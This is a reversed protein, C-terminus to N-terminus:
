FKKFLSVAYAVITKSLKATVETQLEQTQWYLKLKLPKEPILDVLRGQKLCPDVSLAPLLAYAMGDLAFQLLGQPSPVYHQTAKGNKYTKFLNKFYDDHMEDYEGYIAAPANLLNEGNIGKLFFKKVFQPTAVCKYIMEGLYTSICGHPSQAVSTVCGWVKGTRLYDITRDQDDILLELIIREQITISKITSLFWTSLSETNLAIAISQFGVGRKQFPLKEKLSSELLKVQRLHALLQQGITTPSITPSRVLVPQGVTLEMQRIRQSIASQSIFLSAAARQFSREKVVADLAELQDYSLM